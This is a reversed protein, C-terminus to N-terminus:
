NKTLNSHEPHPINNQSFQSVSNKLLYHTEYNLCQLAEEIYPLATVPPFCMVIVNQGSKRSQLM